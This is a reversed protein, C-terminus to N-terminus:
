GNSVRKRTDLFLCVVCVIALVAALFMNVFCAIDDKITAFILAISFIWLVLKIAAVAYNGLDTRLSDPFYLKSLVFNSLISVPIVVLCKIGDTIVYILNMCVLALEIFRSIRFIMQVKDLRLQVNEELIKEKEQNLLEYAELVLRIMSVSIEEVLAYHIRNERDSYNQLSKAAKIQKELEDIRTQMSIQERSFRELNVQQSNIKNKLENNMQTLREFEENIDKNLENELFSIFSQSYRLLQIESIEFVNLIEKVHKLTINHTENEWNIVTQKSVGIRFGYKEQSLGKELRHNRIAEAYFSAYVKIKGEDLGM